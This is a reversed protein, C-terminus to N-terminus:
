PRASGRGGTLVRHANEDHLRQVESRVRLMYQSASEGRAAFV